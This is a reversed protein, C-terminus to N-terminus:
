SDSFKRLERSTRTKLTCKMHPSLKASGLTKTVFDFMSQDFEQRVIPDDKIFPTIQIENGFALQDTFAGLFFLFVIWRIMTM